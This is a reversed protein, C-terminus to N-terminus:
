APLLDRCGCAGSHSDLARNRIRLLLLDVHHSCEPVMRFRTCLHISRFSSAYIQGSLVRWSSHLLQPDLVQLSSPPPVWRPLPPVRLELAECRPRVGESGDKDVCQLPFPLPFSTLPTCLRPPVTQVLHEAHGHAVALLASEDQEPDIVSHNQIIVSPHPLNIEELHPLTGLM